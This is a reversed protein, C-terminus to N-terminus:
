VGSVGRSQLQAIVEANVATTQGGAALWHQGRRVMFFTSIAKQAPVVQGGARTFSAVTYVAVCIAADDGVLRASISDPTLLPGIANMAGLGQRIATLGSWWLGLSNVVEADDSFISVVSAVNRQNWGDFFASVTKRIDELDEDTKQTRAM